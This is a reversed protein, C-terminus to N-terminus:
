YSVNMMAFGAWFIPDQYGRIDKTKLMAERLAGAPNAKGDERINKKMAEYFKIMLIRTSQDPVAWQSVVTRPVGALGFALPLGLITSETPVGRGTNCASLVVLDAELDLSLIKETTLPSDALVIAGPLDLKAYVVQWSRSERSRDYWLKYTFDSDSNW